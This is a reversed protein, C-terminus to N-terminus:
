SVLEEKYKPNIQLTGKGKTFTIMGDKLTGKSGKPYGSYDVKLTYTKKKAM